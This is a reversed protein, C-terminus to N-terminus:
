WEGSLLHRYEQQYYQQHVYYRVWHGHYASAREKGIWRSVVYKAGAKCGWALVPDEELIAKCAFGAVRSSGLNELTEDNAEAFAYETQRGELDYWGFRIGGITEEWAEAPAATVGVAAAACALAM